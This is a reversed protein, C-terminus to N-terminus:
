FTISWVYVHFLFGLCNGTQPARFKAVSKRECLKSCKRLVFTSVAFVEEM